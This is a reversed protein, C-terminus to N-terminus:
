EEDEEVSYERLGADALLTNIEDVSMSELADWTFPAYEFSGNTLLEYGAKVLKVANGGLDAALEEDDHAIIGAWTFEKETDRIVAYIAAINNQEHSIVKEYKKIIM